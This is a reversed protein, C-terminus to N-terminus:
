ESQRSKSRDVTEDTDVPCNGDSCIHTCSWFLRNTRRPYHERYSKVTKEPLPLNLQPHTNNRHFHFSKRRRERHHHPSCMVKSEVEARRSVPSGSSGHTQLETVHPKVTLYILLHDSTQIHSCSFGFKERLM